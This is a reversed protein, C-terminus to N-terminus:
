CVNDRVYKAPNGFWVQGDPIDKTVVSGMGIICNKGIKIHDRITSNTNIETNDGIICSGCISVHSKISCFNGIKTNHAIHVLSNIKTDHGIETDNLTGRCINTLEHIVVNDGIIVGGIHPIHFIEDGDREYGFGQSGITCGKRITVNKGLKVHSPIEVEIVSKEPYKKNMEICFELRSM